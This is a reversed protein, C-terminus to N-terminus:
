LLGAQVYKILAAVSDIPGVPSSVPLPASRLLADLQALRERRREVAERLNNEAREVRGTLYDLTARKTEDATYYKPPDPLTLGKLDEAVEELVKPGMKALAEPPQWARLKPLMAELAERRRRVKASHKAHEAKCREYADDAERQWDADSKIQAEYLEAKAEGVKVREGALDDVVFRQYLGSPTPLGDRTTPVEYLFIFQRAVYWIVHLETGGNEILQSLEHM